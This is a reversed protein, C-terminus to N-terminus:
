FVPMNPLPLGTWKRSIEDLEGSVKMFYITGNLWLRLEDAGKRVAISNPQSFFIFKSEVDADPRTKLYDKMVTDPMAASEIQGSILAQLM